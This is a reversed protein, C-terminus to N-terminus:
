INGLEDDFLRVAMDVDDATLVMPPKIKIVNHLPGDTSLLLGRQQLLNILHDAEESAPELTDRDRVLEVGIFLGMGRVDGVLEHRNKLKDLGDLFRDGLSLAHAQLDEDRIVNLVALGIAASVPNGGFTSFFEMGNDFSAAIEASTVVAGIPHGNGIPKGMVVIDPVVDQSQFAWFHTGARGFGVQVEDAITLGGASRVHKFATKFYSQPPVIQGGCSSISEAIFAGIPTRSKEILAGVENGYAIGDESGGGRYKGRYSDPMPAVHVWPETKGSGGPGMFKYPSIDILRRTHGHYAGDQVIVDRRRTHAEALRLALENAESGSNVFFCTDLPAPLTAALREAYEVVGDHLYRTNTNLRAMQRQGAEVVKAHCHGVHCVNNVLDLFPRGREDYLYQGRGRVIKLPQRYSVSLAGSIHRRRHELLEDPPRGPAQFPDVGAGAALRRAAQVPDLKTLATLLTWARDETVFWDTREPDIQRRKAAVTVTMALRGCILPFLVCLEDESLPREACYGGVVERGATLPDDQDLMCYALAIALECVTPNHLCDGFDLLGAVRGDRVLINEDNADGHILSHPLDPLGPAACAAYLHFATELIRRREPEGILEVHQRHQSADALNWRHTRLAEPHAVGELVSDVVALTRGLDRLQAGNAGGAECWATGPVFELLRARLGTPGDVAEILGNSSLVTRPLAIDPVAAHIAEVARHELDIVERTVAEDALKLVYTGGDEARVMYNENEGPLRTLEGILGYASELLGAIHDPSASTM